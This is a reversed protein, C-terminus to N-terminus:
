QKKWIASPATSVVSAYTMTSWYVPVKSVKASSSKSM